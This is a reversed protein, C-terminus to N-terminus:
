IKREGSPAPDLVFKIMDPKVTEIHGDPWEVIAVTFIAATEPYEIVDIGWQHFLATGKEGIGRVLAGKEDRTYKYELVIVTKM